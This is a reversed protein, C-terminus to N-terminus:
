NILYGSFTIDTDSYFQAVIDNLLEDRGKVKLSIEDGRSLTLVIRNSGLPYVGISSTEGRSTTMVRVGNNYLNLPVAGNGNAIAVVSFFYVGDQPVVFQSTTPDFGDGINTFVTDLSVSRAADSPIGEGLSQGSFAVVTRTTSSVSEDCLCDGPQGPLGNFGLDGFDGKLGPLGPRGDPGSPGPLGNDGQEGQLGPLGAYGSEGPLGALGPAGNEGPLGPSGAEGDLGELGPLGPLGNNGPVGTEGPRGPFGDYGPDGKEGKPGPIQGSVTYVTVCLIIHYIVNVM